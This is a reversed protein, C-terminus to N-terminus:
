AARRSALLEEAKRVVERYQRKYFKTYEILSRKGHDPDRWRDTDARIAAFTEPSLTVVVQTRKDVESPRAVLNKWADRIKQDLAKPDGAAAAAEARALARELDAFTQIKQRSLEAQAPKEVDKLTAPAAYLSGPRFSHQPFAFFTDELVKLDSESVRGAKAAARVRNLADWAERQPEANDMAFCAMLPAIADRWNRAKVDSAAKFPDAKDIMHALYPGAPNYMMRRVPMRRLEYRQPGLEQGSDDRLPTTEHGRAPFQWLAQGEITLCFELFRKALEPNAAGNIVSGPDADIYVAGEPDVYGVRGSNPDDGPKVMFQAQGRGYFDISLGAAAEGQGVDVPVRTAASAFYRANASMERLIRWGKEWEYKNLISDYTTTISGSQRGDALALLNTYRPDTLDEFSKPEPLGLKALLDRNYVIGFGSLATGLWYQDDDYLKQVGIKNEGYLDKLVKPDFGAPRGLRYKIKTGDALTETKEEKMKSHEFSGGGFFLDNGASGPKLMGDPGVEGQRVAAQATAELQKMIDSTGGPTRWDVSVREHYTREYWRAFAAGFEDRIQEVHPTIIVLQNSKPVPASGAGARNGEGAVTMRVLFPLSLVVILSVIVAAKALM